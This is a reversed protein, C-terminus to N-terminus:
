NSKRIGGKLTTAKHLQRNHHRVPKITYQRDVRAVQQAGNPGVAIALADNIHSKPLHLREVRTYKTIYGRTECVPIHHITNTERTKSQWREASPTSKGSLLADLSARAPQTCLADLIGERGILNRSFRLREGALQPTLLVLFGAPTLHGDGINDWPKYACLM